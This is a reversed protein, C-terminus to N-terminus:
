RRSAPAFYGSKTRAMSEARSARVAVQRWAGDRKLKTSTYGIVYQNALEDAIQNYITRLQSIDEVFFARGGTATALSSLIYDYNKTDLDVASRKDRLGIAYVAVASRKAKDLVDESSLVSTTDVAESLVVLAQRRITDASDNPAKASKVQDLAVYVATYLSTSGGTRIARIARELDPVEATFPQRIDMQSDFAVVQAVDRPGLRTVFGVAAEKAVGLKDEMSTSSDILLSLAIPQPDRLFLSITQPVGDEFVHFDDRTLGTIQRGHTDSVTVTLLVIDTGARFIQQAAVSGAGAIVSVAVAAVVRARGTV